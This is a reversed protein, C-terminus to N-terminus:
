DVTGFVVSDLKHLSVRLILDHQLVQILAVHQLVVLQEIDDLKRRLPFTHSHNHLVLSALNFHNSFTSVSDEKRQDLVVLEIVLHFSLSQVMEILISILTEPCEQNAFLGNVVLEVSVPGLLVLQGLVSDLILVLFDFSHNSLKLTVKFNLSGGSNFIPEM